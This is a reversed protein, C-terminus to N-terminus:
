NTSRFLLPFRRTRFSRTEGRRDRLPGRGHARGRAQMEKPEWLGLMAGTPDVIISLWGMGKVEIVNRMIKARLKGARKTAADIDRVLVYPLWASRAGPIM